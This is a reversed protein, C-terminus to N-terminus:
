PAEEFDPLYKQGFLRLHEKMRVANNPITKELTAALDELYHVSVRERYPESLCKKLFKIEETLSNNAKPVICVLTDSTGVDLNWVNRMLQYHKLFVDCSCFNPDFKGDLAPVYVTQFKSLHSEDTKANGFDPETLKIEFLQKSKATTICFDFNSREVPNLVVEFAAGVIAEDTSFVDRLIQLHKKDEAVFPFFLNFCMAQSSSLHHFDSHLKVTTSRFFKWFEERYPELINLHQYGFPLIHSYERHNKRWIGNQNVGLGSEKYRALHRWMEQKYSFTM